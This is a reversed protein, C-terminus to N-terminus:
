TPNDLIKETDSALVNVPTSAKKEVRQGSYDAVISKSSDKLALFLLQNAEEDSLQFFVAFEIVKEVSLMKRGCLVDSM